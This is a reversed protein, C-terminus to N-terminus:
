LKSICGMTGDWVLYYLDTSLNFIRLYTKMQGLYKKKKSPFLPMLNIALNTKVIATPIIVFRM